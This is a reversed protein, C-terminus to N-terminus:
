VCPTYFVPKDAWLADTGMTQKMVSCQKSNWFLLVPLGAIVLNLDEIAASNV